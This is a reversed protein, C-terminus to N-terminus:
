DTLKQSHDNHNIDEEEGRSERERGSHDGGNIGKVVKGLLNVFVMALWRKAEDPPRVGEERSAVVISGDEEEM